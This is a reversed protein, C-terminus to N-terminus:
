RLRRPLLALPARPTRPAPVLRGPAARAARWAFLGALPLLAFLMPLLLLPARVGGGESAAGHSGAGCAWTVAVVGACAALLLLIVASLARTRM